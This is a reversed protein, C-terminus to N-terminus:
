NHCTSYYSDDFNDRFRKILFCFCLQFKVASYVSLALFLLFPPNPHNYQLLKSVAMIIRGEWERKRAWRNKGLFGKALECVCEKKERKVWVCITRVRVSLVNDFVCMTEREIGGERRERGWSWGRERLVNDLVERKRERRRKWLMTLSGREKEREEVCVCDGDWSYRDTCM